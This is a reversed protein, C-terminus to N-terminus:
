KGQPWRIAPIGAALAAKVNDKNNDILLNIGHAVCYSAKSPAHPSPACYLVDWPGDFGVEDLMKEADEYDSAKVDEVKVAHIIYVEGGDETVAKALASFRKPNETITGHIDIALKM